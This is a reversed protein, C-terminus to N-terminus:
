GDDAVEAVAVVAQAGIGEVRGLSGLGEASKLKVNVRGADLGMTEALRRCMSERHAKLRPEQAVVVCDVNLLRFGADRAMRTVEALLELSSCDKFRPDSSPFHHGLDGLACAGLVADAVAHTLADADSHGELGMQYPIEVGGLVLRRGSAFRHTDLGFGIRHSM